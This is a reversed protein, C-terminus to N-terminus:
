RANLVTWWCQRVPRRMARIDTGMVLPLLALAPIANLRRKAFAERIDAVFLGKSGIIAQAEDFTLDPPIAGAM